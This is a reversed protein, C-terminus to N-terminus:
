DRTLDRWHRAYIRDYPILPDRAVADDFQGDADALFPRARDLRFVRRAVVRLAFPLVRILLSYPRARLAWGCAQVYRGSWFAIGALHLAFQGQSRRLAEPSAASHRAGVGAILKLQSKWMTDCEASMGDTRRRYGVLVAPSVGVTHHESVRLALDWDECGGSGEDRFKSNYGGVADIATRRFLPVSANGTFNIEVLSEFARGEVKWSPSRDMVAGRVDIWAWWCYVMGMEPGGAQFRAVQRELKSPAWVDDADLPAIFAGSSRAIGVNRAAAVGLNTQRILRIRPDAAALSRVIEATRDTSGDDVVVIEISALTQRMASRCAEEIHAEGNYVAVIVSVLPAPAVSSASAPRDSMTM